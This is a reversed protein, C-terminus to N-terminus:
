HKRNMQADIDAFLDGKWRPNWPDAAWEKCRMVYRHVTENAEREAIEFLLKIRAVEADHAERLQRREKRLKLIERLYWACLAMQWAVVFLTWATQM